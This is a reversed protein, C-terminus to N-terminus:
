INQIYNQKIQKIKIEDDVEARETYVFTYHKIKDVKNKITMITSTQYYISWTIHLIYIYTLQLNFLIDFQYGAM